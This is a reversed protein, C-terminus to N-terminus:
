ADGILRNILEPIEEQLKKSFDVHLRRIRATTSSESQPPLPVIRGVHQKLESLEEPTYRYYHETTVVLTDPRILKILQWREELLPKLTVIGVGRAHVLEELRQEESVVPRNEGKKARVKEDNDVGVILIDGQESAKELYKDHGLHKIDFAGSTLVIKLGLIDRLAHVTERLREWDAIFRSEFNSGSGFIGNDFTELEESGAGGHESLKALGSVKEKLKAALGRDVASLNSKDIMEEIEAQLNSSSDSAQADWDAKARLYLERRQNETQGHRTFIEAPILTFMSSIASRNKSVFSQMPPYLKAYETAKHTQNSLVGAAMWQLHSKLLPDKTDGSIELAKAAVKIYGVRKVASYVRGTKSDNDFLTAVLLALTKENDGVLKQYIQRYSDRERTEDQSNHSEYDVDGGDVKTWPSTIAALLVLHQENTDLSNPGENPLGTLFEKADAYAAEAVRLLDAYPGLTAVWEGPLIHEPRYKSFRPQGALRKGADSAAFKTYLDLYEKDIPQAGLGQPASTSDKKFM